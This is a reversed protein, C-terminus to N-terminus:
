EQNPHPPIGFCVRGAGLATRNCLRVPPTVVRFDTAYQVRLIGDSPCHKSAPPTPMCAVVMSLKLKKTNQFVNFVCICASSRVTDPVTPLWGALFNIGGRILRVIERVSGQCACQISKRYQLRYRQLTIETRCVGLASDSDTSSYWCYCIRRQSLYQSRHVNNRQQCRLCRRVLELGRTRRSMCIGHRSM